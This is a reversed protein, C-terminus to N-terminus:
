RFLSGNQRKAATMLSISSETLAETREKRKSVASRNAQVLSLAWWQFQYRNEQALREAGSLDEPEGVVNYDRRETLDFADKIRYKLLSTSLHTIDIGIWRRNLKEAAHISTGCGCFPDLVTDHENSSAQIIRDLLALPKQTPYGLRETAMPNIPQILWWDEPHKGKPNLDYGEYIKNKRHAKAYSSKPRSLIEDSYPIRVSDLNFTYNCTKTYRFLIDHKNGFDKKSVGGGSYCWVIENRFNEKGFVSDLIIKLYHSMTPDCHLYLSGASKLVRHLEILRVIMMVLYATVQNAGIFDRLASIMKGVHEPADAILEHYTEQAKRDWHWTDEFATIQSESDERSEEKFLVDYNRNSNFPPDLYILDASEAPIHERLIKLNDGYFLTNKTVPNM